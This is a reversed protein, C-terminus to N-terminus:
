NFNGIVQITGFEDLQQLVIQYWIQIVTLNKLMVSQM